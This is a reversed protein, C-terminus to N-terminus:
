HGVSLKGWFRWLPIWVARWLIRRRTVCGLLIEPPLLILFRWFDFFFLLLLYLGSRCLPSLRRPSPPWTTAQGAWWALPTLRPWSGRSVGGPCWPRWSNRTAASAGSFASDSLLSAARSSENPNANRNKKIFELPIFLPTKNICGCTQKNPIHNISQNIIRENMERSRKRYGYSEKNM